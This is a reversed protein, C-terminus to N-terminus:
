AESYCRDLTFLASVWFPQDGKFAGCFHDVKAKTYRGKVKEEYGFVIGFREELDNLFDIDASPLGHIKKGIVNSFSLIELYNLGLRDLGYVTCPAINLRQEKVLNLLDKNDQSNWIKGSFTKIDKELVLQNIM